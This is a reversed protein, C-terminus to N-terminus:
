DLSRFEVTSLLAQCFSVLSFEGEDIGDPVASESNELFAFAQQHEVPDPSRGFCLQFARHVRDSKSSAEQRLRTAFANARQLVFPSNMLYLAQLPVNTNERAGTVLSPEAFDFLELVDPLRDRIVPLYVSRHVSGDLDPPLDEDLGILSIPRDGIMRGVLSGAPRSRELEGSVALMADRIAEARLRRRPMRWLLRNEPDLEGAVPNYTSAQRWTRTLVLRRVLGKLSWGDNIFHIALTDLLRPHSPVEGTTGFNDTTRVLGADFLHHWARNVIVRSTLPHGPDTLWLSLEVRGSQDNPIPEATSIPIAKPFGRPVVDGPRDIEGRALLRVDAIEGRDLVGMALPVARGEDDVTELRGEMPSRRWLNTLIQRTSFTRKPQEGSKVAQRFAAIEVWEAQLKEVEASVRRFEDPQMSEHLIIEGVVRPLPLPHGGRSNSPSTFTGFFTNTSAFIGALGYYDEMVFPDFKHHHCRACAVTTATVARTVSDIQEDVIDAQFQRESREGLNKTGVALFGTAVLLRAREADSDFQLLDGALQETLFRNYPVNKNFSDIVYDRYRWAYPFSINSETGSSEAYRAVDLWHRGWHEGFQVSALLDDVECSLTQDIGKQGCDVVFQRVREPTPPLGVLDFHLRRVLVEPLADATPELRNRELTHLIFNDIRDLPWASDQVDPLVALSPPQWAWHDRESKQEQWSESVGTTDPTRPDPAGMRIWRAVDAIVAASLRPNEPPMILDEDTHLIATLLLSAEPRGPVVAPGRDGGARIARRSDVQLGGESSESEASHCEYCHRILVPRIKMEFFDVGAAAPSEDAAPKDALCRGVVFLLVTAAWVCCRSIAVCVDINSWVRTRHRRGRRAAITDLGDPSTTHNTPHFKM